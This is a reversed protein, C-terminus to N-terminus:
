IFFGEKELHTKLKARIRYLIVKVNAVSLSCEAAIEKISLCFYYRKIFINREIENRTDLFSDISKGLLKLNVSDWLTDYSPICTDLESLLMDMNGNSRKGAKKKRYLSLSINRMIRGIFARFNDPKNPPIHNWVSFYCDNICEETDQRDNLINIGIKSCYDHYKKDTENIAAESRLFFLEIISQDNM